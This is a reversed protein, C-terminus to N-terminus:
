NNLKRAIKNCLNQYNEPTRRVRTETDLAEGTALHNYFTYVQYPSSNTFGERHHEAGIDNPYPTPVWGIVSHSDESLIKDMAFFYKQDLQFRNFYRAYKDEFTRIYSKEVHYDRQSHIIMAALYENITASGDWYSNFYYDGKKYLLLNMKQSNSYSGTAQDSGVEYYGLGMVTKKVEEASDYTKNLYSLRIDYDKITLVSGNEKNSFNKLLDFFNFRIRQDQGNGILNLDYAESIQTRAQNSIGTFSYGDGSVQDMPCDLATYLFTDRLKKDADFKHKLYNYYVFKANLRNYLIGVRLNPRFFFSRSQHNTNGENSPRFPFNAKASALSGDGEFDSSFAAYYKGDLVRTIPLFRELASKHEELSIVQLRQKRKEISESPNLRSLRAITSSKVAALDEETEVLLGARFDDYFGKERLRYTQKEQSDAETAEYAIEDNDSGYFAAWDPYMNWIPRLNPGHCRSCKNNNDLNTSDKKDYTFCDDVRTVIPFEVAHAFYKQEEHNYGLVDIRDGATQNMIGGNWSLSFGNEEDWLVVRPYLTNGSQSIVSDVPHGRLGAFKLGHKFSVNKRLLEPLLNVATGMKLQNSNELEAIIETPIGLDPIQKSIENANRLVFDFEKNDIVDDLLSSASYIEDDCASKIEIEPSATVRFNNNDDVFAFQAFVTLLVAIFFFVFKTVM